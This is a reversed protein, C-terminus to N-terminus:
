VMRERPQPGTSFRHACWTGDDEEHAFLDVLEAAVDVAAVNAAPSAVNSLESAEVWVVSDLDARVLHDIPLMHLIRQSM